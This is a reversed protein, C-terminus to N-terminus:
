LSEDLLDTNTQKKDRLHKSVEPTIALKKSVFDVLENFNSEGAYQKNVIYAINAERYTDIFLNDGIVRYGDFRTWKLRSMGNEDEISFWKEDCAIVIPQNSSRLHECEEMARAMFHKKQKRINFFVFIYYLLYTVAFTMISVDLWLVPRDKIYPLAVGLIIMFIGYLIGNKVRSRTKETAQQLFAEHMQLHFPENFPFEIHMHKM